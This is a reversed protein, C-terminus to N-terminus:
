INQQTNARDTGEKIVLKQKQLSIASYIQALVDWIVFGESEPRYRFMLIGEQEINQQRAQDEHQKRAPHQREEDCEVASRHDDFYMDLLYLSSGIKLRYQESIKESAFVIHIIDLTSREISPAYIEDLNIGYEKAIIRVNKKRSKQLILTVGQKNLYNKSCNRGILDKVQKKSKFEKPIRTLNDNINVLGLRESLRFADFPFEDEAM